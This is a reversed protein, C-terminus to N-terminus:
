GDTDEVKAIDCADKGTTWTAKLAKMARKYREKPMYTGKFTVMRVPQCSDGPLPPEVVIGILEYGEPTADRLKKEADHLVDIYNKM